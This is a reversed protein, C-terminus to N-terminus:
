EILEDATALLTEPITLGLAKATKLNITLEFKTPQVVPLDAPKEGKLIRGAYLGVQRSVDRLDAGYSLLGGAAVSARDYFMTPIAYRAALSMIQHGAAYFFTDASILLASVQQEVLTAFAAAIDSETGGNLVLVRVGLVHAASQLDKTEAQVFNPNAPNVLMAISAIAPVLEHLLALRKPAIDGSLTAVGTLNATPRNLSAVLGLAVPDSGISFVIPITQTAAKAALASSTTAAVIVAVHRRVLDAALASLRDNDNEAWRYEVIVNRGEVYGTEALGRRFVPLIEQESEPSQADLWGIVPMAPQQARAVMPWVALSGLGAIFERRRMLYGEAQISLRDCKRGQDIRVYRM